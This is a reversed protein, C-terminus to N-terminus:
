RAPSPTRSRPRCARTSRSPFLATPGGSSASRSSSRARSRRTKRSAPSARWPTSGPSIGAKSWRGLREMEEVTGLVIDGEFIAQGDVVSYVVAKADFTQGLVYSQGTQGDTIYEDPSAGADPERENDTSM